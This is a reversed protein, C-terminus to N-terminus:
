NPWFLAQHRRTVALPRKLAWVLRVFVVTSAMIKLAGIGLALGYRFGWIEASDHCTLVVFNGYKILVERLNVKRDLFIKKKWRWRWSGYQRWSLAVEVLKFNFNFFYRLFIKLVPFGCKIFSTIVFWWKTTKMCCSGPWSRHNYLQVKALISSERYGEAGAWDEHM